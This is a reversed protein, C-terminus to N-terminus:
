TPVKWCHKKAQSLVNCLHPQMTRPVLTTQVLQLTQIIMESELKFTSKMIQNFGETCRLGIPLGRLKCKLLFLALSLGQNRM